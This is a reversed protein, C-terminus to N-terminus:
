KLAHVTARYHHPGGPQELVSKGHLDPLALVDLERALVDASKHGPTVVGHGLGISHFWFPVVDAQEQLHRRRGPLSIM